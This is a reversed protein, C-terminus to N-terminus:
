MVDSYLLRDCVIFINYFSGDAQDDSKRRVKILKKATAKEERVGGQEAGNSSSTTAADSTRKRPQVDSTVASTTSKAKGLDNESQSKSLQKTSQIPRLTVRQSTSRLAERM